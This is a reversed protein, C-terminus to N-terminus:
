NFGGGATIAFRGVRIFHFGYLNYLDWRGRSNSGIDWSVFAKGGAGDRLDHM